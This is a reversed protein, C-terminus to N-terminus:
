LWYKLQLDYHGAQEPPYEGREIKEIIKPLAPFFEPSRTNPHITWAKPSDMVARIYKTIELKNSVMVEWSDLKGKGTISNLLTKVGLPLYNMYKRRYSRWLIPLPLLKDFRKPNILYVRSSFFKFSYFGAPNKQYPFKQYMIGDKTPPGTLPRVAIIEPHEQMLKIGEDIWPYDPKQYLLMDNDYHLMYESQNSEIHFITGLIPYGKYNHTQRIPSGFHKQYVKAQYAQSYNFDVVRSVVGDNILRNCYDRLQVM